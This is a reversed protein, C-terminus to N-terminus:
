RLEIIRPRLARGYCATSLFCPVDFIGLSGANFRPVSSNSAVTDAFRPTGYKSDVAHLAVGILILTYQYRSLQRGSLLASLIPKGEIM